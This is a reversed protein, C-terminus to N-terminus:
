QMTHAYLDIANNDIINSISNANSGGGIAIESQHPLNPITIPELLTMQNSQQQDQIM